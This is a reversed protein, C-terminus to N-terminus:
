IYNYNIDINADCIETNHDRFCRYCKNKQYKVLENGNIHKRSYCDNSDHGFRGCRKCNSEDINYIRIIENTIISLICADLDHKSFYSVICDCSM